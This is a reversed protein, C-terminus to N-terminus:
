GDLIAIPHAPARSRAGGADPPRRCDALATEVDAGSIVIRFVDNGACRGEGPETWCRLTGPERCVTTVAPLRRAPADDEATAVVIALLLDIV